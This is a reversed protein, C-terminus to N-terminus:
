DQRSSAVGSMDYEGERAEVVLAASASSSRIVDRLHRSRICRKELRLNSSFRSGLTIHSRVASIFRDTLAFADSSYENIRVFIAGSQLSYEAYDVQIMIRAMRRM